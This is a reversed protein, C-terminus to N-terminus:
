DTGPEPLPTFIRAFRARYAEPIPQSKLTRADVCATPMRADVCTRGDVEYLYRLGLSSRGLRYCTVRVIPRDGFRLPHLFDVESRVMPFAVHQHEILHYYRM